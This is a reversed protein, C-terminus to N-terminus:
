SYGGSQPNKAQRQLHVAKVEELGLFKKMFINWICLIFYILNKFAIINFYTADTCGKALFENCLKFSGFKPLFFLVHSFFPVTNHWKIKYDCVIVPWKTQWDPLPCRAGM